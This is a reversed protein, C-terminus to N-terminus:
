RTIGRMRDIRDDLRAIFDALIKAERADLHLAFITDCSRSDFSM